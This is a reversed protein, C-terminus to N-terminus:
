FLIFSVLLVFNACLIGLIFSIMDYSRNKDIIVDFMSNLLFGIIFPLMFYFFGPYFAQLIFCSIVSVLISIPIVHIYHEKFYAKDLIESSKVKILLSYFILFFSFPIFLEFGESLAFSKVIFILFVLFIASLSYEIFKVKNMKFDVEWFKGSETMIYQKLIFILVFGWMLLTLNFHSIYSYNMILLNVFYVFIMCMALGSAFGILKKYKETRLDKFKMYFIGIMVIALLFVILIEYLM